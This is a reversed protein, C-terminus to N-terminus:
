LEKQVLLLNALSGKQKRVTISDFHLQHSNTTNVPIKLHNVWFLLWAATQAWLCVKTLSQRLLFFFVSIVTVWHCYLMPSYSLDRVNPINRPTKWTLCFPVRIYITSDYFHFIKSVSLQLRLVDRSLWSPPDLQSLM